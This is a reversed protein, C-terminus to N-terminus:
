SIVAKQTILVSSQGTALVVKFGVVINMGASFAGFKAVWLSGFQIENSAQSATGILRLKNKVFTTGATQPATAFVLVTAGNNNDSNLDIVGLQGTVTMAVDAIGDFPIELKAPATAIASQSSNGLNSNLKVFLNIGSPNRIDGFVDTSAFDTVANNFSARQAETLGSWQSALAGLQGRVNQQATSSPNLPTVKTRFYAGGRNRSAVFGNIKGSGETVIAGFKAKM